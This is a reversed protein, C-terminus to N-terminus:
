PHARTPVPLEDDQGGDAAPVRWGQAGSGRQRTHRARRRCRLVVRHIARPRMRGSSDVDAGVTPYHVGRERRKWPRLRQRCGARCWFGDRWGDGPGARDDRRECHRRVRRGSCRDDVTAQAHSSSTHDSAGAPPASRYPRGAAPRAGCGPPRCGPPRRLPRIRRCRRRWRTTRLSRGRRRAGMGGRLPRGLASHDRAARAVHHVRRSAPATSAPAAAATGSPVARHCSATDDHGCYRICVGCM